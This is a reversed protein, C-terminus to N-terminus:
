KCNQLAPLVPAKKEVDRKYMAKQMNAFNFMGATSLISLM